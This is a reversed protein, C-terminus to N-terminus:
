IKMGTIPFNKPNGHKKMAKFSAQSFLLGDFGITSGQPLQGKIWQNVTPVKPETMKFLKLYSSSIQTEAQIFYRGDTWLGAANQTIVVTGASGSFGSIWARSRWHDAVYESQHSDSSPLIYTDIKTEKMITRLADIRQNITM